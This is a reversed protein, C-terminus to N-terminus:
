SLGYRLGVCTTSSLIRLHELSEHSLFEAFHGQLKPILPAEEMKPHLLRLSFAWAVTYCVCIAKRFRLILYLAQCRGPAPLNLPATIALSANFRLGLLRRGYSYR